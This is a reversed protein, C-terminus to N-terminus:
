DNLLYNLIDKYNGIEIEKTKEVIFCFDDFMNYYALHELLDFICTETQITDNVFINNTEKIDKIIKIVYDKECKDNSNQNFSNHLKIFLKNIKEIEDM